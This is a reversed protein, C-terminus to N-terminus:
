RNRRVHRSIPKVTLQPYITIVFKDPSVNELRELNIIFGDQTQNKGPGYIDFYM